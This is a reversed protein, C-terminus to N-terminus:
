LSKICLLSDWSSTSLESGYCSSLVSVQQSELFRKVKTTVGYSTIVRKYDAECLCKLLVFVNIWRM